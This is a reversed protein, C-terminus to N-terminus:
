GGGKGRRKRQRQELLPAAVDDILRDLWSNNNRQPSSNQKGAQNRGGSKAKGQRMQQRQEPTLIQGAAKRLERRRTAKEQPSAPPNDKLNQFYETLLTEIKPIQEDTLQFKAAVKNLQTQIPSVSTETEEYSVEDNYDEQARLGLFSSCVILILFIKRM